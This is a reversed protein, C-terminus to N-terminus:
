RLWPKWTVQNFGEGIDRKGIEIAPVGSYVCNENYNGKKTVSGASIVAGKELVTGPLIIAGSGIWVNDQIVVNRKIYEFTESHIKHSASLVSTRMSISVNNGIVLKGRGDLVCDENIISNEGIVINQPSFVVTGMLIRSNKGISMGLFSYFFKRIGWFPIHTVIHNNIYNIIDAARGRIWCRM